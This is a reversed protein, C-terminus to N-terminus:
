LYLGLWTGDVIYDDTPVDDAEAREVVFRLQQSGTDLDQRSLSFEFRISYTPAANAVRRVHCYAGSRRLLDGGRFVAGKSEHDSLRLM